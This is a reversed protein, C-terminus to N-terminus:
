KMYNTTHYGNQSISKTTLHIIERGTDFDTFFPTNPVAYEWCEVVENGHTTPYFCSGMGISLRCLKQVGHIDRGLFWKAQLM